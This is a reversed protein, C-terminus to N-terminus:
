WTHGYQDVRLPKTRKPGLSGREVITPQGCINGERSAKVPIDRFISHFAAYGLDSFGFDVSTIPLLSIANMNDFSLISLEEPVRIGAASIWAAIETADDDNPAIIATIEPDRVLPALIPTWRVLRLLRECKGWHFTHSFHEAIFSLHEYPDSNVPNETYEGASDIHSSLDLLMDILDRVFPMGQQRLRRLRETLTKRTEPPHLFRSQVIRMDPSIERAATQLLEARANRWNNAQSGRIPYGIRSHDLSDLRELATKVAQMESYHCRRFLSNDISPVLREKPLDFRDFWVVPRKLQLLQVLKDRLSPIEVITGAVLCGLYRNELKRIMDIIERMEESYYVGPVMDAETFVPMVHIGFKGAEENFASLMRGFGVSRNSSLNHWNDLNSVILAIVPRSWLSSTKPNRRPPKPGVIWKKGDQHLLKEDILQLFIKRVTKYSAGLEEEFFGIKPLVDGAKYEGGKIRERMLQLGRETASLSKGRTAVEDLRESVAMRQGQRYSLVGEDRLRRAAASVAHTGADFLRCLENVSPLYIDDTSAIYDRLKQAVVDALLTRERGATNQAISDTRTSM